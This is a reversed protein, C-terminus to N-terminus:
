TSDVAEWSSIDFLEFIFAFLNESKYNKKIKQGM